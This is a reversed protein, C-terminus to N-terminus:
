IIETMSWLEELGYFGRVDPLMIHVIIDFFDILIWEAEAEGEVGLPRVGNEKARYIVKDALTGAHRRSKASCIIMHDAIDTFMTVDLDNVQLAKHKELTDTVLKALEVAKMRDIIYPNNKRSM